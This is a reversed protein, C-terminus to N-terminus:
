AAVIATVQPIYVSDRRTQGKGPRKPASVDSVTVLRPFAPPTPIDGDGDIMWARDVGCMDAFAELVPRMPPRKFNDHTWRSVTGPDVGLRQAMAERGVEAFELSLAMRRGLTLPPIAPPLHEASMNGM